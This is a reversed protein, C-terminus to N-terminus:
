NGTEQEGSFTKDSINLIFFFGCHGCAAHTSHAAHATHHLRYGKSLAYFYFREERFPLANKTNNYFIVSKNCPSFFFGKSSLNKRRGRCGRM